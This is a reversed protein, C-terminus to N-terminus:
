TTDRLMYLIFPLLIKTYLLSFLFRVLGRGFFVLSFATCTSVMVKRVGELLQSQAIATSSIEGDEMGEEHATVCLPVCEMITHLATVAEEGDLQLLLTVVSDVVSRIPISPSLPPPPPPSPPPTFNSYLQM